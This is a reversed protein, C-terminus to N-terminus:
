RYMQNGEQKLYTEKELVYILGDNARRKYIRTGTREDQHSYSGRKNEDRWRAWRSKIDLM